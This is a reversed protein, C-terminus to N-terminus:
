RLSRRASRSRRSVTRGHGMSPHFAEYSKAGDGFDRTVIASATNENVNTFQDTATLSLDRIGLLYDDTASGGNPGDLLESLGAAQADQIRRQAWSMGAEAHGLAKTYDVENVATVRDSFSLMLLVGLMLMFVVTLLLVAILAVGRQNAMRDQAPTTLNM